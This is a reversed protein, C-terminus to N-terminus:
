GVVIAFRGFKWGALAASIVKAGPALAPGVSAVV